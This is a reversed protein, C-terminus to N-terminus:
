WADSWMRAPGVRVLADNMSRSRATLEGAYEDPDGDVVRQEGAPDIGGEGQAEEMRLAGGARLAVRHRRQVPAVHEVVRPLGRVAGDRIRRAVAVRIGPERAPQGADLGEGVEDHQVVGGAITVTLWALAWQSPVTSPLVRWRVYRLLMVLTM